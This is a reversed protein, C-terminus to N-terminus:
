VSPQERCGFRSASIGVRKSFPSDFVRDAGNIEDHIALWEDYRPYMSRVLDHGGTLTNVQGWHPRGCLDYLAEEYAALLEYGGETWKMQILEIMMTTQGQMMSMLASSEKVFRLSIPGTEYVTGAKRHRDAVELIVNVAELHLGREDVPVAIEASYAPAYNAPGINLVRYSASTYDEDALAVIVMDLLRPALRPRLDLLLNALYPVVRAMALFEPVSNRRRSPSGWWHRSPPTKDRTTVLCRVGQGPLPYPSFILEYHRHEDLVKGAELDRRVDPWWAKTRVEKLWYEDEVALYVAYILGMCGMGVRVADFWDADQHLEWGPREAEFRARDTIGGPPEVRMLRGEGAVLDISRVSDAIPGFGTGSGHTSTSMVGAVTQADYGGMNSLALGAKDLRRNLERLRIGAETRFLHRTDLGTRLVDQEPALPRNLGRTEVLFGDTLAVDSWSHGSGVARVTTGHDHAAHVIAQLDELSRADYVRLPDVAQNRNHNRWRQRIKFPPAAPSV